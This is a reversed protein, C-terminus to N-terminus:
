GLPTNQEVVDWPAVTIQFKLESVPEVPDTPKEPNTPTNDTDKMGTETNWGTDNVQTMNIKFWDNRRVAHYYENGPGMDAEGTNNRTLFIRYYCQASTFEVVHWGDKNETIQDWASQGSNVQRPDGNYFADKYWTGDAKLIRFFTNGTTYGNGYYASNDDDWQKGDIKHKTGSSGYMNKNPKFTGRVVIYSTSGKSVGSGDASKLPKNESFLRELGITHWDNNEAPTYYEGDTTVTQSPTQGAADQAKESLPTTWDTDGGHPIMWFNEAINGRKVDTATFNGLEGTVKAVKKDGETELPNDITVKAAYRKLTIECTSNGETVTFESVTGSMPYGNETEIGSLSAQATKEARLPVTKETTFPGYADIQPELVPFAVKKDYNALLVINKKGASVTLSPDTIGESKSINHQLELLGTEANFVYIQLNKITKDGAVAAGEGGETADAAALLRITLNGEPTSETGPGEPNGPGNGLEDTSCSTAALGLAAFLIFVKKM